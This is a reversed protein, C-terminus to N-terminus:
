VDKISKEYVDDSSHYEFGIAKYFEQDSGVFVYEIGEEFARNCAEYIAAKALGKRRYDYHTGVPELICIKNTTDVWLTSFAVVEKDKNLIQIDYYGNYDPMKHLAKLGEESKKLFDEKDYYGFACAHGKALSEYSCTTGEVIQFDESLEIQFKEHLPMSLTVESWEIKKFGRKLAEEKLHLATRQIRLQVFKREGENKMLHAEIYDLIDNSMQSTLDLQNMAVFAEGRNEGETLVIAELDEEEFGKICDIYKEETTDNMIRSITFTFNLRDILWNHKQGKYTDMLFDRVNWFNEKTYTKM